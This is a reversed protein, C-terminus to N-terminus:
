AREEGKVYREILRIAEAGGYCLAVFYGEIDLARMFKRQEPTPKNEGVKLEIYLGHYGGRPAPLVIDCVGPKVGMRRFKAAEAKNRSGGNPVHYMLELCPYRREM